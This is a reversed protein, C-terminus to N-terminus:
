NSNFLTNVQLKKNEFILENRAFWLSWLTASMIIEWVTGTLVGKKIKAGSWLSRQLNYADSNTVIWWVCVEKWLRPACECEWLIHDM